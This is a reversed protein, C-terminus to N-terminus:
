GLAHTADDPGMKRYREAEADGGLARQLMVREAQIRSLTDVSFDWSQTPRSHYKRLRTLGQEVSMLAELEKERKSRKRAM